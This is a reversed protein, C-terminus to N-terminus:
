FDALRVPLEGALVVRVDIGSVAVRLITELLDGLRVVDEAIRLLAFEVILKAHGSGLRAEIGFARAGRPVRIGPASRSRSGLRVAAESAVLAELIDEPVNEAGATRATSPRRRAHAGGALIQLGLELDLQEIGHAAEGGLDADVAALDARGT